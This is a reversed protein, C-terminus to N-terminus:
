LPNRSNVKRGGNPVWTHADCTQFTQHRAAVTKGGAEVAARGFRIGAHANLAVTTLYSRHMTGGASHKITHV